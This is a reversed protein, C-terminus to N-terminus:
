KFRILNKDNRKVMQFYRYLRECVRVKIGNGSHLEVICMPRVLCEKCIPNSRIFEKETKTFISVSTGCMEDYVSSCEKIEKEEGQQNM